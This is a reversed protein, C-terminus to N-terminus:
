KRQTELTEPGVQKPMMSVAFGLSGEGNSDYNVTWMGNMHFPRIVVSAQHGVYTDLDCFVNFYHQRARIYFDTDESMQDKEKLQGFRFWPKELTRFVETKILVAGLGGGVVPILGTEHDKLTYVRFLDDPLEKDFVLPHHPFNRRLQLALVIDKDHRLLRYLVDPKCVVDDDIFMVHSCNHILAQEIIRNRNNAISQGHVFVCITDKPKEIMQFYDYFDARRAMEGTVVGIMIKPLPEGTLELIKSRIGARFAVHKLYEANDEDYVHKWEPGYPEHFHEIEIQPLYFRRTPPHIDWITNDCKTIQYLPSLIGPALNMVRRSFIPHCAFNENFTSDRFYFMGLDDPVDQYPILRDWGKTKFIMDDNAMMLWRGRSELWPKEHFTSRYKTPPSYCTTIIGERHTFSDGDLCVVIEIQSLDSVTEFINQIFRERKEPYKSPLLISLQPIM